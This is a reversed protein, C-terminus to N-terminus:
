TILTWMVFYLMSSQDIFSQVFCPSFIPIFHQQLTPKLQQKVQYSYSVTRAIVKVYFQIKKMLQSHNNSELMKKLEAITQINEGLNNKIYYDRHELLWKRYLISYSWHAFRPRNAFRYLWKGNIFEGYKVLHYSNEM